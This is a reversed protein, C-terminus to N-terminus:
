HVNNLTLDANVMNILIGTPKMCALEVSGILGRTETSLPCNLSVFDSQALLEPLSLYTAGLEREAELDRRRNHYLIPMDFARARRAVNAGIRGMGVIGLTSGSVEQGILISPDYHVFERSRAYRDGMVVNRATALILALTMDATSADLCGPTNGVPIGRATAAPVDIHDVGVGHNSVVKVLPARDLLPGDVRPHGYTILAVARALGPSGPSDDWPIVEIDSGLMELLPPPLGDGMVPIAM